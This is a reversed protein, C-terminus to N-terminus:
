PAKPVLLGIVTCGAGTQAQCAELAATQAAEATDYNAVSTLLEPKLEVGQPVALAGYFNFGAGEFAALQAAMGAQLAEVMATATADLGVPAVPEFALTNTEALLPTVATATALTFGLALALKRM